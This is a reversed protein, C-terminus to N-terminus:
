TKGRCIRRYPKSSVLGFIDINFKAYKFSYLLFRLGWFLMDKRTKIQETLIRGEVVSVTKYKSKM